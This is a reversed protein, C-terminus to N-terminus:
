LYDEPYVIKYNKITDGKNFVCIQVRPNLNLASSTESTYPIPIRTAYPDDQARISDFDFVGKYNPRKNIEKLLEIAKGVTLLNKDYKKDLEKIVTILEKLTSRDTVSGSLDLMKPLNLDASCIVYSNDCSEVGWKHAYFMEEDEEWFYYGHGLWADGRTCKFPGYDEIYDPNEDDRVTNYGITNM